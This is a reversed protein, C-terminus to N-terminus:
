LVIIVEEGDLHLMILTQLVVETIELALHSLNIVVIFVNCRCCEDIPQLDDVGKVLM